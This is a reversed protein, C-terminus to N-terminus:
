RIGVTEVTQSFIKMIERLEDDTYPHKNLFSSDNAKTPIFKQLYYKEAGRILQAMSRFDATGLQERVITTRFEYPLGSAMILRISEQIDAPNVPMNTIEAYRNLPGKIDMAIYDILRDQILSDLMAPNTGQSDLKIKYGLAKIAGIFQPLDPHVTPEGGTIVVAELKGQRARLFELIDEVPIPPLFYEPKVLEPNHCYGCRFNCGTTFVIASVLGPYDIMSFKQLGGIRM